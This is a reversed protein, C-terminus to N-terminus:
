KESVARVDGTSVRKESNFKVFVDGVQECEESVCTSLDTPKNRLWVGSRV